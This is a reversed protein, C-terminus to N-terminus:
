GDEGIKRDPDNAREQAALIRDLEDLNRDLFYCVHNIRESHPENWFEDLNHRFDEIKGRLESDTM